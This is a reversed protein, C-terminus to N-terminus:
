DPFLNFTITPQGTFDVLVVTFTIQRSIPNVIGTGRITALTPPFDPQEQEPITITNDFNDTFQLSLPDSFDFIDINWNSLRYNECDSSTITIDRVPITFTGRTGYYFGGLVCDDLITYTFSKGIGALGQGVALENDSVATITFVVDQSRLINNANNILQLELYGFYQGKPITLSGRTGMIRYDVNERASGGISYQVTIDQERAPAALHVELKITKSFSERQTETANTFRVHYPGKFLIPETECGQLLVAAILLSLITYLKSM